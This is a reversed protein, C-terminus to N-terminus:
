LNRQMLLGVGFRTQTTGVQRFGCALYFAEAHPNGTVHLTNSGRTRAAAACRDVLLRAIGRRRFAPEVFLADLEADGDSRPEIASFGVTIGALEAVFVRGAVLQELPISIADPNALLSDRDGDNTLSARWQLAELAKQEAVTATRIVISATTPPHTM